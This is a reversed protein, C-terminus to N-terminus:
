KEEKYTIHVQGWKGIPCTANALKVKVNMICGCESCQHTIKNYFPCTKCIDLREVSIVEDFNRLNKNFIDLPSAPREFPSKM